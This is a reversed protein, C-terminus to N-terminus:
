PAASTVARGFGVQGATIATIARQRASQTSISSVPTKPPSPVSGLLTIGIASITAAPYRARVGATLGAVWGTGATVCGTGATVCGTGATVCGTGATVCGTGASRAAPGRSCPHGPEQRGPDQGSLGARSPRIAPAASARATTAIQATPSVTSPANGIDAATALRVASGIM